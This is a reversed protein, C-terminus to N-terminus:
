RQATSPEGALMPRCSALCSLPNASLVAHEGTSLHQVMAQALVRMLVRAWALPLQQMMQMASQVLVQVDVPLQQMM